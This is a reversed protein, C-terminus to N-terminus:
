LNNSIEELERYATHVALIDVNEDEKLDGFTVRGISWLVADLEDPQLYCAIENPDRQECDCVTNQDENTEEIVLAQERREEALAPMQNREAWNAGAILTLYLDLQTMGEPLTIKITM